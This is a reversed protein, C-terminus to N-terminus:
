DGPKATIRDCASSRPFPWTNLADSDGHEYYRPLQVCLPVDRSAEHFTGLHFTGYPKERRLDTGHETGPERWPRLAEISSTLRFSKDRKLNRLMRIPWINARCTKVELLHALITKPFAFGAKPFDPASGACAAYSARLASLTDTTIVITCTRHFVSKSCYFGNRLDVDAPIDETDNGCSALAIFVAILVAIIWLSSARATAKTPGGVVSGGAILDKLTIGARFLIADEGDRSSRDALFDAAGAWIRALMRATSACASAPSLHTTM